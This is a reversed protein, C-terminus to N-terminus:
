NDYIVIIKLFHKFLSISYKHQSTEQYLLGLSYFVFPSHFEFKLCELLYKESDEMKKLVRCVEGYLYFIDSHYVGQQIPLKLIEFAKKFQKKKVLTTALLILKNIDYNIKFKV